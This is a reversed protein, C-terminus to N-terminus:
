EDSKFRYIFFEKNENKFLALVDGVHKKCAYREDYM